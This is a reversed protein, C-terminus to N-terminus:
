AKRISVKGTDPDVSVQRRTLVAAATWFRIRLNLDPPERVDQGPGGEASSRTVYHGAPDDPDLIRREDFFAVQSLGTMGPPVSLIV